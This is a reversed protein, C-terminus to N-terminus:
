SDNSDSVESDSSSNYRDLDEEKAKLFPFVREIGEALCDWAHNYRQGVNLSLFVFGQMLVAFGFPVSM